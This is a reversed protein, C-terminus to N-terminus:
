ASPHEGERLGIPVENYARAARDGLTTLFSRAIGTRYLWAPLEPSEATGEPAPLVLENAWETLTATFSPLLAAVLRGLKAPAGVTVFRERRECARIIREAAREPSMTLVPLSAALSFWASESERQGKVLANLFSGTRMLGPVITTVRIGSRALEAGSAGSFGVLAFKSSVYPLLHPVAIEGGISTINVIAGEGRERMGPLVEMTTHVAGWFNVDFAQRFEELNFTELPGVQIIGANNVLVDVGGFHEQAASVLSRVQDRDAIDCTMALVKAGRAELEARATALEHRNRACIVLRAGRRAFHRALVLGLGRSGGTILVVKGRLEFRRARLSRAVVGAAGLVGLGALAAGRFSPGLWQRSM